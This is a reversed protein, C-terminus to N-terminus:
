FPCEGKAYWAGRLEVRDFVGIRVFTTWRLPDAALWEALSKGGMDLAALAGLGVVPKGCKRTSGYAAVAVVLTDGSRLETPLAVAPKMRESIEACWMALGVPSKVCWVADKAPYCQWGCDCDENLCGEKLGDTAYVLYGAADWAPFNDVVYEMSLGKRQAM